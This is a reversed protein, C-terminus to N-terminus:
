HATGYTELYEDLRDNILADYDRWKNWNKDFFTVRKVEPINWISIKTELSELYDQEMKQLWTSDGDIITDKIKSM